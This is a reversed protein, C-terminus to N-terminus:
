AAVVQVRHVEVVVEVRVRDRALGEVVRRRVGLVTGPEDSGVPPACCRGASAGLQSLPDLLGLRLTFNPMEGNATQRLAAM